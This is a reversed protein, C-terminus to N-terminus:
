GRGELVAELFTKGEDTLVWGDKWVIGGARELKDVFVSPKIAVASEVNLSKLHSLDRGGFLNGISTMSRPERCFDLLDVYADFREPMRSLLGEIRKAPMMEDAVVRGADTTVFGYTLVLDDVEDESLGQKREDTVISGHEDLDVHELGGSDVLYAILRYPNQAAYAFEPYSQVTREVDGLERLETCYALIKRLIERHSAKGNVTARVEDVRKELALPEPEDVAEASPPPDGPTGTGEAEVDQALDDWFREFQEEARPDAEDLTGTTQLANM